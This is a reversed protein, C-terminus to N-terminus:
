TFPEVGRARASWYRVFLVSWDAVGAALHGLPGCVLWSFIRDRLTL